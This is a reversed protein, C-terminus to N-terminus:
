SNGGIRLHIASQSMTFDGVRLMFIFMVDFSMFHKGHIPVSQRFHLLIWLLRNRTSKESKRLFYMQWQMRNLDSSLTSVMRNCVFHSISYFSKHVYNLLLLLSLLLAVHLRRRSACPVYTCMFNSTFHLKFSDFSFLFLSYFSCCRLFIFIFPMFHEISMCGTYNVISSFEWHMPM